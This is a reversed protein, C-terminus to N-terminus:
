VATQQLSAADYAMMWGHFPPNDCHAAWTVYVQGNQLLLGPRQNEMLPDFAVSGGVSGSGKGPVSAQIVVPGGFKEAGNRIDLAHLRQVFTGNEKTKSVVYLTASPLDIVPTGTIGIEPAINTCYADVQSDVTTIGAAPNIFSVHWLPNANTGQNNDADFAYVSDHETAVFVVNHAVGGIQVGSVYLPQAYVSGDVPQVFLQGFLTPNVNAPTLLTENLNQGDRANNNHYTTVNVQAQATSLAPALCSQLLLLWGIRRPRNSKM